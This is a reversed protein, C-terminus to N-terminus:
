KIDNVPHDERQPDWELVSDHLVQIKKPYSNLSTWTYSTSLPM